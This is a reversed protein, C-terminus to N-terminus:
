AARAHSIAFFVAAKKRHIRKCLIDIIVGCRCIRRNNKYHKKSKLQTTRFTNAVCVPYKGFRAYGKEKRQASNADNKAPRFASCVKKESKLVGHSLENTRVFRVHSMAFFVAAKKRHISKCLIVLIYRYHRRVPLHPSQEQLAKQNSNRLASLTQQAFLTSGSVHM